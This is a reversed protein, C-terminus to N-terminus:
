SSSLSDKCKLLGEKFEPNDPEQKIAAEFDPLADSFKGMRYSITARNYLAAAFDPELKLAEDYDIMAAPFEVQMYKAHGRNNFAKARLQSSQEESEKIFTSYMEEVEKFKKESYLRDTSAELASM